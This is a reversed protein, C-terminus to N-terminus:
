RRRAGRLRRSTKSIFKTPTWFEASRHDGLARYMSLFLIFQLPWVAFVLIPLGIFTVEQLPWNTYVWLKIPFNQGEMYVGLIVSILLIAVLPTFYGHIVDKILSTRHRLFEIFEFVGLLGFSLLIVYGFELYPPKFTSVNFAFKALFQTNLFIKHLSIATAAIGFVLLVSYFIKEFRFPKTVEKEGFLRDLVEKTADYSLVITIWYGVFGGALLVVFLYFGASYYPYYWLSGFYSAAGDFILGALTALSLFLWFGPGKHLLRRLASYGATVQCIADSIFVIGICYLGYFLTLFGATKASEPLVFPLLSLGLGAFGLLFSLLASM